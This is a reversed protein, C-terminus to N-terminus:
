AIRIGKLSEFLAESNNNNKKILNMCADVVEPAYCTSRNKTIEKKAEEIHLSPRYPRHSSMAEFVDAVSLIKSEPELETDTLGKPYGTGDNREHHQLVIVAVDKGLSDVFPIDKIADHGAQPHVKILDFEPSSLQSPKVLLEVPVAVKGIDHLLGAVHVIELEAQSMDLEEGIGIALSAVRNQHGSTYPDRMETLRGLSKITSYFLNTISATRRVVEKELTDSRRIRDRILEHREMCRKVTHILFEIELPKYLYDCAGLRLAEIVDGTTGVGSFVLIQTTPNESKILKLIDLGSMRPMSIDTLILTPNEKKFLMIGADGDSATVVDFGARTLAQGVVDLIMEDDDIVLIKAGNDDNSAMLLRGTGPQKAGHPHNRELHPATICTM